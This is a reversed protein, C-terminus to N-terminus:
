EEVTSIEADFHGSQGKMDIKYLLMISMGECASLPLKCFLENM